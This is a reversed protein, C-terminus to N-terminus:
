KLKEYSKMHFLMTSGFFFFSGCLKSSEQNLHTTRWSHESSGSTELLCRLFLQLSSSFPPNGQYIRKGKCMEM